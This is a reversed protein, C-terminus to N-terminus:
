DAKVFRQEKSAAHRILREFIRRDTEEYFGFSNLSKKSEELLNVPKVEDLQRRSYPYLIAVWGEIEAARVIIDEINSKLTIKGREVNTHFRIRSQLIQLDRIMDAMAERPTETPAAEITDILTKLFSDSLEPLTINSLADQDIHEDAERVFQTFQRAVGEAYDSLQSLALPLTARVAAHRRRLRETEHRESQMIQSRLLAGAWIAAGLALM